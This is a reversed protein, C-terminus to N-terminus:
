DAVYHEYPFDRLTSGKYDKNTPILTGEKKAKELRLKAEAIAKSFQPLWKEEAVLLEDAMQWVERPNLVAGVLPDLLMARRLLKDDGTAGADTALKQVAIMNNCVQAMASDM